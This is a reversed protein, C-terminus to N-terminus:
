PTVTGDPQLTAKTVVSDRGQHIVEFPPQAFRSASAKPDDTRAFLTALDVGEEKATNKAAILDSMKDLDIDAEAKVGLWDFIAARKVGKEQFWDLTAKRREPLTKADGAAVRKAADIIPQVIALPVALFIANRRAKSCAAARTTAIQDAKIRTGDRKLLSVTVETSHAVNSELDHAIGQAVVETATEAIVRAQVRLNGYTAAVIEALRASPGKVKEGGVPKAYELSAAIEPTITALSEARKLFTDISRPFRHATAISTDIEARTLSELASPAVIMAEKTEINNADNM